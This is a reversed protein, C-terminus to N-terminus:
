DDKRLILALGEERTGTGFGGISGSSEKLFVTSQSVVYWGETHYLYNITREVENFKAILFKFRTKRRSQINSVIKNKFLQLNEDERLTDTEESAIDDKTFDIEKHCHPCVCIRDFNEESISFAKSCHPCTVEYKM